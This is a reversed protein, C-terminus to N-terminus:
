LHEDDDDVVVVRGRSQIVVAYVVENVNVVVIVMM